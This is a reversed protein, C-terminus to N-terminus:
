HAVDVDVLIVEFKPDVESFTNLHKNLPLNQGCKFQTVNKPSAANYCSFSLTGPAVWNRQTRVFGPWM